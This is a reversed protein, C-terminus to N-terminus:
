STSSEVELPKQGSYSHYWHYAHNSNDLLDKRVQILFIEIELQTWGLCKTFPVNTVGGLSDYNVAACYSGVSKLRPEKPWTGVPVKEVDHIQNVFGAADIRDGFRDAADLDVGFKDFAERLLDVTKKPTYDPGVTGDDSAFAWVMDQMEIWGGPKLARNYAQALLRPWDKLAPAMNRVHIYDISDDPYLWDAEVDDVVFHVNSPVCAPQIPSLDLGTIDTDMARIGTGTGIDLIKQPNVLPANHLAGECVHVLMAHKMDERDQEMDDNPLMYRGEKFKHYRRRNEFNYDRVSSAMSTSANSSGDSPEHYGDDDTAEDDAVIAAAPIPSSSNDRHSDSGSNSRSVSARDAVM